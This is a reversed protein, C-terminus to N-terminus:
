NKTHNMERYQGPTIGEQKKFIRNFYSTQYGVREAIDGMRMDTELLLEKAKGMRIDTLYDIFNNGNIQKFLKSLARSGMGIHEACTDLSIEKMYNNQLYVMALEIAKKVQADSRLEMEQIIIHLLKGSFWDLMKHPERIQSLQEYLNASKFLRNLDIGLQRIAHLITGLLQMFGQQVDFERGRVLLAEMFSSILLEAESKQGTRIAQIIERELAFPYHMEISEEQINLLEIDIVQNEDVFSRYCLSQKAEEYDSPIHVVSDGKRGIAISVQVKLLNNVARTVDESLMHLEKRFSQGPPLIILLGISLNHFNVANVQKFYSQASEAIINAAAFTVLGEDGQAFRGGIEEFGTLHFHMVVHRCGDVEWGFNGMRELLDKESYSYLFGQMLQLLFGEKVHPLQKELKNQLTTSERTLHQWQKEILKFEDKDRPSVENYWGEGIMVKTLRGIPTYLKRSVFWSLVAALLLSMFSVIIIIKTILAIPKEVLSIPSASVYTWPNGLRSMTGYSVTYTEGNWEYLLSGSELKRSLVEQLLAEEFPNIEQGGESSILMDGTNSMVFTDGFNYPTLTAFLENVKKMNLQISLVGFPHPDAGPIKHILTLQEDEPNSPDIQLREWFVGRNEAIIKLYNGLVAKDTVIEYEPNFRVPQALDLFLEVNGALPTFGLVLGLTKNVDRAVEFDRNFDVSAFDRDFKTDFAWHALSNEIYTFQDDISKVREAIQNNHLQLLENELQDGAFWYLMVGVVIGPISTIVLIMILSNRYFRGKM